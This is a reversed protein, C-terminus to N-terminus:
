VKVNSVEVPIVCKLYKLVRPACNVGTSHTRICKLGMSLDVVSVSFSLDEVGDNSVVQVGDVSM